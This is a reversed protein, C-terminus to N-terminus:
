ELQCNALWPSVVAIAEENPTASLRNRVGCSIAPRPHRIGNKKPNNFTGGCKIYSSMHDQVSCELGKALADLISLCVNGTEVEIQSIQKNTLGTRRALEIQSYGRAKRLRTLNTGLLWLADSSPRRNRKM